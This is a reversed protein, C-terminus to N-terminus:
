KQAIQKAKELLWPWDNAQNKQHVRKIVLAARKQDGPISAAIQVLLNLFDTLRQKKIPSLIKPSTRSLFVKFAEMKYTFLDSKLEYYCKLELTKGILAYDLFSSHDPLTDLCQQFAGTYFYYNALNFRCLDKDENEDIM